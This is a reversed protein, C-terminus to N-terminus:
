NIITVFFNAVVVQMAHRQLLYQVPLAGHHTSWHSAGQAGCVPGVVCDERINIHGSVFSNWSTGRKRICLDHSLFM